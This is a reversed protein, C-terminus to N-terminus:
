EEAQVEMDIASSLNFLLLPPHSADVPFPPKSKKHGACRCANEIKNVNPNAKMNKEKSAVDTRRKHRGKVVGGKV